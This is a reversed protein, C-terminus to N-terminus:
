VTLRTGTLLRSVTIHVVQKARVGSSDLNETNIKCAAVMAFCTSTREGVLSEDLQRELEAVSQRKIQKNNQMTSMTNM